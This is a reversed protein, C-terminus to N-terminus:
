KRALKIKDQITTKSLGGAQRLDSREQGNNFFCFTPSANVRYEGFIQAADRDSYSVRICHVEPNEKAIAEFIGSNNFNVCHRCTPSYFEVIAVCNRLQNDLENKNKATYIQGEANYACLTIISLLLFSHKKM